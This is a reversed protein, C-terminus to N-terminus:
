MSETHYIRKREAFKNAAFIVVEDLVTFRETATNLKPRTAFFSARTIFRLTIFILLIIKKM